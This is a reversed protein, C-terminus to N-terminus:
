FGDLDYEFSGYGSTSSKISDMYDTIIESLPIRIKLIYKKNEILIEEIVKGRHEEVLDVM